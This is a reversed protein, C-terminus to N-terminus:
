RKILADKIADFREQRQPQNWPSGLFPLVTEAQTEELMREVDTKNIGGRAMITRISKVIREPPEKARAVYSQIRGKCIRYEFEEINFGM